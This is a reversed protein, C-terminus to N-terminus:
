QAITLAASTHQTLLAAVFKADVTEAVAMIRKVATRVDRLLM